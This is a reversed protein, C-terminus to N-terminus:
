CSNNNTPSPLVLRVDLVYGHKRFPTDYTCHGVRHGADEGVGPTLGSAGHTHWCGCFPCWAYLDNGHRVAGLHVERIVDVDDFSSGWGCDRQHRFAGALTLKHRGFRVRDVYEIHEGIRGGHEMEWGSKELLAWQQSGLEIQVAQRPKWALPNSEVEDLPSNWRGVCHSRPDQRWAHIQLFELPGCVDNKISISM